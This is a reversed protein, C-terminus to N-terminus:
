DDLGLAVWLGHLHQEKPLKPARRTELESETYELAEAEVGSAIRLEERQEKTLRIIFRRKAVEERARTALTRTGGGAQVKRHIGQFVLVIVGGMVGAVLSGLLNEM